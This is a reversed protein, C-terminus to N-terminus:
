HSLELRLHVQSSKFPFVIMNLFSLIDSKNLNFLKLNIYEPINQEITASIISRKPPPLLIASKVSPTKLPNHIARIIVPNINIFFYNM